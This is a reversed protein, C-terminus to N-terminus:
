NTRMPLTLSVTTGQKPVSQITFQGSFMETLRRATILGLGTGQQEQIRRDFQMFAGIRAIQEPAMGHGSDTISISYNSRIPMAVVQVPTGPKSFKFANDLIEEIIKQFYEESICLSAPVLVLRLDNKRNAHTAKISAISTITREPADTFDDQLTSANVIYTMSYWLFQESLRKLRAAATSVSKLMDMQVQDESDELLLGAYGEIIMTATRLEHPLSAAINRRFEEITGKLEAERQAKKELRTNIATRLDDVSFPKGLFDDAGLNMGQRMNKLDALATLFIFPISATAPNSRLVSLVEFGSMDPMSIDCIILDPLSQQAMRVGEIGGNAELLFFEDDLSKRILGRLINDDDVTLITLM